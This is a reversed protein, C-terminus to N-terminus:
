QGFNEYGSWGALHRIISVADCVDIVGLDYVDASDYVIYEAYGDWGALYRQLVVIDSVEVTGNGDVDGKIFTKGYRLRPGLVTAYWINEFDLGAYAAASAKLEVASGYKDSSAAETYYYNNESTCSSSGVIPNLATMGTFYCRKVSTSTGIRGLIGGISAPTTNATTINGRSECDSIDTYKTVAIIGGMDKGTSGTAITGSNYCLSLEARSNERGLTRGAIGGVYAVATSDGIDGYNKCESINLKTVIDAKEFNVNAAIGAVYKIGTVNGSNECKKINLIGNYDGVTSTSVTSQAVIGAVLSDTATASIVASNKCSLIDISCGNTTLHNIQGIIGGVCSVGSVVAHNECDSVLVNKEASVTTDLFGVIGGANNASANVTGYNKCNTLSGGKAGGLLRGAIGGVNKTGTVTVYSTLDRFVSNESYGAFAGCYEGNSSVTGYLICNEITAGSIYGFLGTRNGTVTNNINLGKVTHGQGDFSGTFKFGSLYGISTQGLGRSADYISSSLDIDKTLVIPKGWVTSDNMIQLLQESRSVEITGYRKATDEASPVKSEDVLARCVYTGLATRTNNATNYGMSSCFYLYGNAYFTSNWIGYYEGKYEDPILSGDGFPTDLRTFSSSVGKETAALSDANDYTVKEKSLIICPVATENDEGTFQRGASTVYDDQYTVAIRGDPLVTVCPAACRYKLASYAPNEADPAAVVIGKDWTKGDSSFWLRTVFAYRRTKQLCHSEVAMVYSGDTLRAVMPMGERGMTKEQNIVIQPEGWTGTKMDYLALMIYQNKGSDAPSYDDAYYMAVTTDDLQILFPEWFGRKETATKTYVAEVITQENSYTGVYSSKTMVRISSYFKGDGADGSTHSRYALMMTGDSLELAHQNARVLTHTVNGVTYEAAANTTTSIGGATDATNFSAASDLSYKYGSEYYYELAGNQLLTMRPYTGGKRVRVAEDFSLEPYEAASGNTMVFPLAALVALVALLVVVLKRM